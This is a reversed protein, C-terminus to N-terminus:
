ATRVRARMPLARDSDATWMLTLAGDRWNWACLVNRTYVGRAMVISPRGSATGDPQDAVFAATSLFIDVRNGYTDGWDAVGGRAPQFDVTALEAGTAGEFVTLYEPGTLIYGSSSRYDASDDDTAAPGTQLLSGTGDLTGPATKVVVEAKGDGDFDYVLFQTYHEGARINPGLDIRWLLQGALTYADLFVDGTCGSRPTKPTRHIGNLVIEVTRRRRSGRRLRRRRQLQLKRQAEPLDGPDRGAPIQLPIRLFDQPWANVAPSQEQTEGDIIAAVQYQVDASGMPDLFNTSDSVTTLLAGDRYVAYAVRGPNKDDYEYGFMRWGLYVGNPVSVAVLGRDLYEM